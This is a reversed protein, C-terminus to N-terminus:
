LAMLVLEHSTLAYYIADLQAKSKAHITATLGHYNGDKSKNIVIDKADFEPAHEALIAEVAKMLDEHAKGMIKIPFDCPFELLTEKEAFAPDVAPKSANDNTPDKAM